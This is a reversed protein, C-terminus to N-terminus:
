GCAPLKLSLSICVAGGMGFSKVIPLGRTYELSARTLRENEDNLVKTNAASHRSIMVLFVFSLLVGGVAILACEPIIVFLFLLICIFNLYGGIFGDVMRIGMNELTALGTTIANLIAGTDNTQFYGLSVRKLAEGIKLRDRAVLEYGIKEHCRAKLYDFLFRAAVM